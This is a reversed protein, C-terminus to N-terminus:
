INKELWNKDWIPLAKLYYSEAKEFDGTDGYLVAINILIKQM